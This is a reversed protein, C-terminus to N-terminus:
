DQRDRSGSLSWNADAGDNDDPGNAGQSMAVQEFNPDQGRLRRVEPHGETRGGEDNRPTWACRRNCQSSHMTERTAEVQPPKGAATWANFLDFGCDAWKM